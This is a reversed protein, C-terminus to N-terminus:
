LVHGRIIYHPQPNRRHFAGTELHGGDLLRDPLGMQLIKREDKVYFSNSANYMGRHLQRWLYKVM